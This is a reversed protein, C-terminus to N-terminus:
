STNLIDVGRDKYYEILPKTAFRINKHHTRHSNSKVCQRLFNIIINRINIDNVDFDYELILKVFKIKENVDQFKCKNIATILSLMRDEESLENTDLILKAVEYDDKAICLKLIYASIEINMESLKEIAIKHKDCYIVDVEMDDTIVEDCILEFNKLKFENSIHEEISKLTTDEQIDYYEKDGTPLNIYITM